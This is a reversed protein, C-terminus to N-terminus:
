AKRMWIGGAGLDRGQGLRKVDRLRLIRDPFILIPSDYVTSKVLDYLGHLEVVPTQIGVLSEWRSTAQYGHGSTESGGLTM